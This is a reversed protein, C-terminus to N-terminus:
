SGDSATLAAKRAAAERVLAAAHQLAVRASSGSLMRAIEALVAHPENLAIVDISTADGDVSKRLAYHRDAWAAIQALHTVCLIQAMFGLSALRLGVASATAGGIGADIEDFVMAGAPREGALVVIIALLVRSLEGGSAARELGRLPEGPNPSLRFEVRERGAAGPEALPTLAVSFRAAPMALAALECDLRRELRRVATERLTSLAAADDTFKARAQALEAARERERDDHTAARELTEAFRTRAALVAELSGGYKKKVRELRDLRATARELEGADLEVRERERTLATAAENADSQLATLTDALMGFSAGFRAVPRLASAASGLTEIACGDSEALAEHAVGLAGAIRELNALYNRRDRLAEDEGVVPAVDDIEALAFRADDREAALRGAAAAEERSARELANVREFNHAVAARRALAEEGAFADLLEGQYGNSLLRQAQHQGITELLREGYARVQASTAAVGCLRASSRGSVHLERAFIAPEGEDIEFGDRVFADRLAADCEVELTVRARQAGTRVVDPSVRAGLVFDLAGLLMTKGSGTEGSFVTFAPSLEVAARAILGFDEIELRLLTM